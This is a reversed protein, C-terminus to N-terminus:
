FSFELGVIPGKQTLNVGLRDSKSDAKIDLRSGLQYGANASLHKTLTVGFNDSTSVLSGYGFLYMGGFSGEVFLRPSNTLYYRFETGAVPIAALMSKKAAFVHDDDNVQAAAFLSASPKFVDAQMTLGLHGRRGRIIDYQYGPAMLPASLNAKTVAGLKFTQGQFVITRELTAQQSQEFPAGLLYLHNKRTFRWDVKGSFTSYSSFGFDRHLDIRDGSTADQISGAPNSYFWFEEIHVKSADFETESQAHLSPVAVTTLLLATAIALTLVSFVSRMSTAMPVRGGAIETTIVNGENKM